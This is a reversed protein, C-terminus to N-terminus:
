DDLTAIEALTPKLVRILDVTPVRLNIGRQGASLMMQQLENASSDLFVAWGKDTLMLPSIGGTLLGTMKEADEHRAMSLKKFGAARALAKLDLRGDAPVLALLPKKEGTDVVLTKYVMYPPVGVAEALESADHISEDFYIPEYPVDHQELFRMSNLKKQKAM